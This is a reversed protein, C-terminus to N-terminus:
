NPQHGNRWDQQKKVEGRGSSSSHMKRHQGPARLEQELGRARCGCADAPFVIPPARLLRNISQDSAKGIRSDEPAQTVAKVVIAGKPTAGPGKLERELGRAAGRVGRDRPVSNASRTSSPQHISESM